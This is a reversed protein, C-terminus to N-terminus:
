IQPSRNPPVIYLYLEVFTMDHQPFQFVSFGVGYSCHLIQKGLTDRPFATKLKETKVVGSINQFKEQFSVLCFTESLFCDCFLFSCILPTLFKCLELSQFRTLTVEISFVSLRIVLLLFLPLLINKPLLIGFFDIYKILM